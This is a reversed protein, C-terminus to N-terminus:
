WKLDYFLDQKSKGIFIAATALYGHLCPQRAGNGAPVFSSAELIVVHNSFMGVRKGITFRNRRKNQRSWMIISQSDAKRFKSIATGM